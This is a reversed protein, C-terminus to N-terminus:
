ITVAPLSALSSKVEGTSSGSHSSFAFIRGYVAETLKQSEDETLDLPMANVIFEIQRRVQDKKQLLEAPKLNWGGVVKLVDQLVIRQLNEDRVTAKTSDKRFALDQQMKLQSQLAPVASLVTETLQEAETETLGETEKDIITRVLLRIENITPSKPLEGAQTKAYLEEGVRVPVLERLTELYSKGSDPNWQRKGLPTIRSRRTANKETRVRYEFWFLFAILVVVLVYFVLDETTPSSVIFIRM